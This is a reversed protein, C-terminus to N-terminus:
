VLSATGDSIVASMIYIKESNEQSYDCGKFDYSPGPEPEVLNLYEQKAPKSTENYAEAALLLIDSYRIIRINGPGNDNLGAHAPM